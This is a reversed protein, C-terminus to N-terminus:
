GENQDNNVTLATRKCIPCVNREMLWQKICQVHFKHICLDMKAIEEGDEFDELCITCKEKDEPNEEDIVFTFRERKINQMIVNESLGADLESFDENLLEMMFAHLSPSHDLELWELSTFPQYSVLPQIQVVPGIVQQSPGSNSPGAQQILPQHSFANHVSSSHDNVFSGNEHSHNGTAVQPDFLIAGNFYRFQLPLPVMVAQITQPQPQPQPQPQQPQPLANTSISPPVHQMVGNCGQILQPQIDASETERFFEHLQREVPLPPSSSSEHSETVRRKAQEGMSSSEGHETSSRKTRNSGLAGEEPLDRQPQHFRENLREPTLPFLTLLGESSEPEPHSVDNENNIYNNERTADGQPNM